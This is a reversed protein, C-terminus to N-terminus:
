ETTDSADFNDPLVYNGKRIVRAREERFLRRFFAASKTEEPKETQHELFHEVEKKFQRSCSIPITAEKTM